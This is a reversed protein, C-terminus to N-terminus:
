GRGTNQKDDTKESRASRSPLDGPYLRAVRQFTRTTPAYAIVRGTYFLSRYAAFCTRDATCQTHRNRHYRRWRFPDASGAAHRMPQCSAPAFPQLRSKYETRTTALSRGPVITDLAFMAAPLNGPRAQCRGSGPQQYRDMCVGERQHAKLTAKRKARTRPADM